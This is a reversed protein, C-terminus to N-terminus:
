IFAFMAVCVLAYNLHFRVSFSGNTTADGSEDGSESIPKGTLEPSPMASPHESDQVSPASSETETPAGSLAISPKWSPIVSPHDSDTVSPSM